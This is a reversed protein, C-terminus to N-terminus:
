VNNRYLHVDFLYKRFTENFDTLYKALLYVFVYAPLSSLDKSTKSWVTVSVYSVNIIFMVFM